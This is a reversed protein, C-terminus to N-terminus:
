FIEKPPENAKRYSDCSNLFEGTLGKHGYAKRNEQRRDTEGSNLFEKEQFEQKRANRDNKDNRDNRALVVYSGRGIKKVMGDRELNLLMSWVTQYNKNLLESLEKPSIPRDVQLMMDIVQQREKGQTYKEADGLLVWGGANLDLTLALEQEAIDRGTISLTADAQGRARKMVWVSDAAGGLGTSGSLSDVFDDTERKSTHHLILLSVQHEDAIKKLDAIIEYDSDYLNKNTRETPRVRKLVDVIILNIDPHEKLTNRLANGGDPFKPWTNAFLLNDPFPEGKLLTELRNKLRRKGDELALYLCRRKEVKIKGFMYGGTAVAIGLGLALWSKGIKGRGAFVTIGDPLLGPIIWTIPKIEEAQLDKASFIKPENGPKGKPPNWPLADETLKLLQGRTGGKELWDSIDGKEPLNPLYLIKIISATGQLSLAVEEAHRMGPGDNDPLICVKRGQFYKSFEKKWKGAGGSNTTAVFGLKALNDCDKEGEPIFIWSDLPANLLEPLRYPVPDVGQLNWIWGNGSPDPRRQLFNKPSCRVVQYLLKGTEDLYDYTALIKREHQDIPIGLKIALKQLNGKVGCAFCVFGVENLSLSQRHDDHYPCLAQYFGSSNPGKVLKLKELIQPLINDSM